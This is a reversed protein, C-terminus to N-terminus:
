SLSPTPLYREYLVRSAGPSIFTVGNLVTYIARVLDEAADRKLVYGRMGARLAAVILYEAASATLLIMPLAPADRHILQAANIGNMGPMAYDLIVLDPTAERALTVADAGDAATLVTLDGASHLLGIVSQRIAPSDDAFLIRLAM